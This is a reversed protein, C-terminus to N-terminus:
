LPFIEGHVIGAGATMWNFDGQGYRGANGQSDSHDVLGTMTATITEFGRHPHQPFGPVYDGHYMRYPQKADFDAGNGKRPAQMKSDGAPYQDKHYVCMLFPSSTKFPSGIGLRAIDKVVSM